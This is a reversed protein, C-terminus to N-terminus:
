STNIISTVPMVGELVTSQQLWSHLRGPSPLNELTKRQKEGKGQKCTIRVNTQTSISSDSPIAGTGYISCSRRTVKSPLYGKLMKLLSFLCTRHWSPCYRCGLPVWQQMLHWAPVTCYFSHMVRWRLQMGKDPARLSDQGRAVDTSWKRSLFEKERGRRKSLWDGGHEHSAAHETRETNVGPNRQPNLSELEAYSLMHM